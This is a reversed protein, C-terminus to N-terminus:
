PYSSLYFPPFSPIFSPISTQMRIGRAFVHLPFALVPFALVRADGCRICLVFGLGGRM